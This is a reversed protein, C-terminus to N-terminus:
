ILDSKLISFMNMDWYRMNWYMWSRLLGENKFGCKYLVKESSINGPMVEAEIRNIQLTRFGYESVVKIAETTIGQNWYKPKLDYGLNARHKETYNNFGASGILEGSNKLRIGWRIGLKQDYHSHLREIIVAAEKEKQFPILNYFNTVRPDSFLEYIDNVYDPTIEILELRKTRLTPFKNETTM